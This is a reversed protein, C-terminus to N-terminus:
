VALSRWRIPRLAREWNSYRSSMLVAMWITTCRLCGLFSTGNESLPRAGTGLCDEAGELIINALVCLLTGNMMCWRNQYDCGAVRLCPDWEASVVWVRSGHECRERM